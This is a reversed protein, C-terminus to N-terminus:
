ARGGVLGSARPLRGRSHPVKLPGSQRVKCPSQPVNRVVRLIFTAIKFKPAPIVGKAIDKGTDKGNTGVASEM